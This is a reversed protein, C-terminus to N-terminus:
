LPFAIHIDPNLVDRKARIKLDEAEDASLGALMLFKTLSDVLQSLIHMYMAGVRKEKEDTPWANSPLPSRIENITTFGVERLWSTYSTTKTLDRGVSKAGKTALLAWEEIATGAVTDDLATFHLGTDHFEVWGGPTLHDFTKQMVTKTVDFCSVVHGFHVYDFSEPFDWAEYEADHHSFQCNSPYSTPKPM